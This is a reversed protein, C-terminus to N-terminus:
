DVGIVKDIIHVMGNTGIIDSKGITAKMGKEDAVIINSGKKTITLTTGALTILKVSGSKLSQHLLVTDYMGAVIHSKLLTNLVELSEPHPLNKKFEADLSDFAEVTPAFVTFPGEEKMLMDTLRATIVYSAFSKSEKTAMLRAMVSNAQAIQEPSPVKKEPQAEITVEQKNSVSDQKNEKVEEKCSLILLTTALLIGFTSRITM